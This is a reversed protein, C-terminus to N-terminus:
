EGDLATTEEPTTEEPSCSSDATTDSATTEPEAIEDSDTTDSTEPETTIVPESTGTTDEPSTTETVPPETEDPLTTDEPETTEGETTEGETTESETTESESTEPIKWDSPPIIIKQNVRILRPDEIDNYAAIRAVTTNYRKAIENLTEGHSVTHVYEKTPDYDDEDDVIEGIQMNVTDGDMIYLGGNVGKDVYDVYHSSTGWHAFFTVVTEKTVTIYVTISDDGSSLANVDTGLQQTHYKEIACDKASIVCFGTSADGSRTLSVEYTMGPLLTAKYTRVDVKEVDVIADENEKVTVSVDIDFSAVKIVNSASTVSHTFYAYGTLSMAALCILMISVVVTIRGVMVSERIRGHKPVRFYEDYFRKM